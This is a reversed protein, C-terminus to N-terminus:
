EDELYNVPSEVTISGKDFFEMPTTIVPNIQLYAECRWREIFGEEGAILPSQSPDTAYLPTAGDAFNDVAYFDRFLTSFTQCRDASGDGYFDVQMSVQTQMKTNQTGPIQVEVDPDYNDTYSRENTALRKRGIENIAIFAGKPMPVNDVQTRIVEVSPFLLVLFGRMAKFVNYDTM